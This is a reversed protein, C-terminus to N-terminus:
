HLADIGNDDATSDRSECGRPAEGLGTAIDDKELAKGDPVVFPRRVARCPDETECVVIRNVHPERL